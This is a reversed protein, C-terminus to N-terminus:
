SPTSAREDETTAASSYFIPSSYLFIADLQSTLKQSPLCLDFWVEKILSRVTAVPDRELADVFTNAPVEPPVFNDAQELAYDMDTIADLVAQCAINV